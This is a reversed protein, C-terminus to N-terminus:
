IYLAMWGPCWPELAKSLREFLYLLYKVFPLDDGHGAVARPLNSSAVDLRQLM